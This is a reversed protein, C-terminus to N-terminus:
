YNYYEEPLNKLDKPFRGSEDIYDCGGLTLWKSEFNINYNNNNLIELFQELSINHGQKVLENDIYLAVWGDVKLFLLKNDM